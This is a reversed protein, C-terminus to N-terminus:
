KPKKANDSMMELRLRHTSYQCSLHPQLHLHRIRSKFSLERRQYPSKLDVKLHRSQFKFRSMVRAPHLLQFRRTMTSLWTLLMKLTKLMQKRRTVSAESRSSPRQRNQLMQKKSRWRLTSSRTSSTMLRNFRKPRLSAVKLNIRCQCLITMKKMMIMWQCTKSSVPAEERLRVLLLNLSERNRQNPSARVAMAARSNVKLGLKLM